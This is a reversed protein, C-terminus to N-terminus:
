KTKLNNLSMRNKLRSPTLDPLESLATKALEVDNMSYWKKDAM